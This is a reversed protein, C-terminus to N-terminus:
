HNMPAIFCVCVSTGRRVIDSWGPVAEALASTFLRTIESPENLVLVVIKAAPLTTALEPNLEVIKSDNWWVVNGLYIDAIVSLNLVLPVNGLAPLNYAAVVMVAAAPLITVDPFETSNLGVATIGFDVNELNVESAADETSAFYYHLKDDGDSGSYIASWISFEALPADIGILIALDFAREGKCEVQGLTDILHKRGADGQVFHRL